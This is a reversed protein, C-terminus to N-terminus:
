LGLQAGPPVTLSLGDIVGTERGYGFRINEFTVEGRTVALANAGPRDSLAIPRAITSMVEQVVGVNEFITTVPWAVWGAANVIQWALPLAMAVTGVEVAGRTWPFIALGGPSVVLLANLSSLCLGFLTNLRLSARFLGTHEDVAHRVYADEDRARAFLKVTLINTYADVIRGTLVSRAESMDHSRDRMR